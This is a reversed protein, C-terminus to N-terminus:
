DQKMLGARELPSHRQAACPLSLVHLLIPSVKRGSPDKAQSEQKTKGETLALSMALCLGSGDPLFVESLLGPTDVLGFPDFVSPIVRRYELSTIPLADRILFLRPQGRGIFPVPSKHIEIAVSEISQFM